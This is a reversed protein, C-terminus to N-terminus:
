DEGVVEVRAAAKPVAEPGNPSPDATKGARAAFASIASELEDIPSDAGTDADPERQADPGRKETFDRYRRKLWEFALKPDMMAGTRAVRMIRGKAVVEAREYARAFHSWQDPVPRPGVEDIVEALTEDNEELEEVRSNWADIEDQLKRGRILWRQVTKVGVGAVPAAEYQFLCKNRMLGLLKNVRKQRFKGVPKDVRASWSPIKSAAGAGSQEWKETKPDTSPSRVKKASGRKKSSKKKPAKGHAQRV